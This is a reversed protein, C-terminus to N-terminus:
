ESVEEYFKQFLPKLEVTPGFGDDSTQPWIRYRSADAGWGEIRPGPEGKDGKPGMPGARGQPGQAGREAIVQWGKSDSPPGNPDDYVAVYTAGRHNV